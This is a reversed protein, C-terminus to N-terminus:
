IQKQNQKKMGKIKKTRDRLTDDQLAQLKCKTKTQKRIFKTKKMKSYPKMKKKKIQKEPQNKNKYKGRWACLEIAM